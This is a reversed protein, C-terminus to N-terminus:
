PAEEIRVSTQRSRPSPNARAFLLLIRHAGLACEFSHAFGRGPFEGVVVEIRHRATKVNHPRHSLACLSYHAASIAAASISEGRKQGAENMTKRAMSALVSLDRSLDDAADRIAVTPMGHPIQVPHLRDVSNWGSKSKSQVRNQM